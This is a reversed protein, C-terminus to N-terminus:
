LPYKENSGLVMLYRAKREPSTHFVDLVFPVGAYSLKITKIQEGGEPNAVVYDVAASLKSIDFPEYSKLTFYAKRKHQPAHVFLAHAGDFVQDVKKFLPEIHEKCFVDFAAIEEGNVYLKLDANLVMPNISRRDIRMGPAWDLEREMDEPVGKKRMTTFEEETIAVPLLEPQQTRIEIVQASVTRYSVPGTIKVMSCTPSWTDNAMRAFCDDPFKEEFKKLTDREKEPTDESCAVWDTCLAAAKIGPYIQEMEKLELESLQPSAFEQFRPDTNDRYRALDEEDFNKAAVMSDPLLSCSYVDLGNAESYSKLDQLSEPDDVAVLTVPWKRCTDYFYKKKNKAFRWFKTFGERSEPNSQIKVIATEKGYSEVLDDTNWDDRGAAIIESLADEESGLWANGEDDDKDSELQAEILNGEPDRLYMESSSAGFNDEFQLEVADYSLRYSVFDESVDKRPLLNIKLSLKKPDFKGEIETGYWARKVYRESILAHKKSPKRVTDADPLADLASDYLKQLVPNAKAIEKDDLLMTCREDFFPACYLAHDELKEIADEPVGSNSYTQFEKKSIAMELYETEATYLKLIHKSM